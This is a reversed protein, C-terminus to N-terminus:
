ITLDNEEKNEIATKYIGKLVILGLGLILFIMATITSFFMYVIIKSVEFDTIRAFTIFINVTYIIGIIISCISSVALKNKINRNFIEGKELSKFIKIFEYIMVLAPISSIYIFIVTIGLPEKFLMSKFLGEERSEIAIPTIIMSLICLLFLIILGIKIFCYAKEKRSIKIVIVREQKM